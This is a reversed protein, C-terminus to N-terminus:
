ILPLSIEKILRRVQDILSHKYDNMIVYDSLSIKEKDPMQHQMRRRVDEETVNDRSKVRSIRSRLPAYVTVTVDLYKHYGSEFLIAAEMAVISHESQQAECWENFHKLVEPHIISNAIKLKEADNFIIDAFKNRDLVNDIYIDPGFQNILKERIIPSNDNLARAENDANYVPVGNQEFLKAVISKGSGIGGTIGLKIM